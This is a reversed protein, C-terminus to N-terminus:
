LRIYATAMVSSPQVCNNEFVNGMVVRSLQFVRPSFALLYKEVSYIFIDVALSVTCVIVHM